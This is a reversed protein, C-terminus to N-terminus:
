RIKMITEKLSVIDPHCLAAMGYNNDDVGIVGNINFYSCEKFWWGSGHSACGHKGQKDPTSFKSGNNYMLRSYSTCNVSNDNAVLLEYSTSANKVEFHDYSYRILYGHKGVMDIIIQVGRSTLMHIYELGLWFDGRLDGFGTVYDTWSRNFSVSGQLRHQLVTWGGGDGMNCVVNLPQHGAPAITYVGSTRQGSNYLEACGSCLGRSCNREGTSVGNCGGAVSTCHRNRTQHGRGGCTNASCTGWQSWASWSVVGQQNQSQCELNCFDDSCCKHCPRSSGIFNHVDRGEVPGVHSCEGKPRCGSAFHHGSSFTEDITCAQNRSCLTLTDCYSTGPMNQCQYCYPGRSERPPPGTDGCGQNNCMDGDCCEVCTVQGYPSLGHFTQGLSCSQNSICGSTYQDHGNHTRTKHIYCKEGTACQTSHDCFELASISSCAFCQPGATSVSCIFGFLLGFVPIILAM